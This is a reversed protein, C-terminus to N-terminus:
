INEQGLGTLLTLLQGQEINDTDIKAQRAIIFGQLLRQAMIADKRKLFKIVQINNLLHKSTVILSGFMAGVEAQVNMINGIEVSATQNAMFENHVITLKQRDIKITDAFFVFPFVTKASFLNDRSGENLSVLKETETEQVKVHSDETQRSPSFRTFFASEEKQMYRREAQQLSINHQLIAYKGLLQSIM